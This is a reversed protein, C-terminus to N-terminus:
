DAGAQHALGPGPFELPRNDRAVRGKIREVWTVPGFEPLQENRCPMGIGAIDHPWGKVHSRTRSLQLLRRLYPTEPFLRASLFPSTLSRVDDGVIVAQTEM